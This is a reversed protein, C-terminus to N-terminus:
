SACSHFLTSISLSLVAVCSIHRGYKRSQQPREGKQQSVVAELLRRNLIEEESEKEMWPDGRKVPIETIM